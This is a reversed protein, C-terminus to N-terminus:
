QSNLWRFMAQAIRLIPKPSLAIIFAVLLPGKQIGARYAEILEKFKLGAGEVKIEFAFKAFHWGARDKLRDHVWGVRRPHAKLLKVQNLYIGLANNGHYWWGILNESVRVLSPSTVKFTRESTAVLAMELHPWVRFEKASNSDRREVVALALDKEVISLSITEVFCNGTEPEFAEILWNSEHGKVKDESAVSSVTGMLVTSNRPDGLFSILPALSEGIIEEGAGLIWVFRSTSNRLVQKLNEMGGLNSPNRGVKVKQPNKLSFDSAVKYSLDRSANDWVVVEIEGSKFENLNAISTLSEALGDEEEFVPIGITLLGKHPNSNESNKKPIAM